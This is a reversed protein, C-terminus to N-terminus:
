AASEAAAALGEDDAAPRYSPESNPTGVSWGARETSTPRTSRFGDLLRHRRLSLELPLEGWVEKLIAKRDAGPARLSRVLGIVLRKPNIVSEV